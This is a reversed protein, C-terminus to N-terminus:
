AGTAGFTFVDPVMIPVLLLIAASSVAFVGM